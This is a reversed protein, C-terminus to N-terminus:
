KTSNPVTVAERPKHKEALVQQKTDNTNIHHVHRPWGVDM